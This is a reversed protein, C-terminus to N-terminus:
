GVLLAIWAAVALGSVLGLLLPAVAWGARGEGALARRGAGLAVLARPGWAGASVGLGLAAYLAVVVPSTPVPM